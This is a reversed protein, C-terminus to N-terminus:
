AGLESLTLWPGTECALVAGNRTSVWCARCAGVGCPMVVDTYGYVRQGDFGAARLAALLGAPRHPATYVATLSAWRAYEKMLTPLHGVRVEIEAALSGLPYPRGLLLVATAGVALPLLPGPDESAVLLRTSDAPHIPLAKGLPGILDVTNGPLLLARLADGPLLDFCFGAETLGSPLVVRRIPQATADLQPLALLAFKGMAPRIPSELWVRTRGHGLTEMQVCRASSQEM